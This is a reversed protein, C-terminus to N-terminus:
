GMATLAYETLHAPGLGCGAGRAQLHELGGDAEFVWRLPWAAHGLIMSISWIFAANSM